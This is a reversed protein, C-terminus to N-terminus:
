RRLAERSPLSRARSGAARRRLEAVTPLCLLAVLLPYVLVRQRALLGFNNFTSFAYVFMGIYTLCLVVFARGERFRPIVRLRRWSALTLCLLLAGEVATALAQVNGAEWPFPRFLVTLTALPLDAPSDVPQAAFDSGGGLERNGTSHLVTDVSQLSVDEVGFFERTQEAIVFGVVALAVLTVVRVLPTLVTRHADRRFLFGVV